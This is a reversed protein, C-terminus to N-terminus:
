LIGVKRCEDETVLGAKIAQRAAEATVGKVLYRKGDRIAQLTIDSIVAGGSFEHIAGMEKLSTKNKIGYRKDDHKGNAKGDGSKKYKLWKANAGKRGAQSRAYYTSGAAARVKDLRKSHVLGDEILFLEAIEAWVYRWKQASVGARARLAQQDDPLANSKTLWMKCLLLHYARYADPSLHETDLIWDAVFFPMYRLEPM